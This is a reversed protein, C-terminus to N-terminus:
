QKLADRAFEFFARVRPWRAKNQTSVLFFPNTEFYPVPAGAIIENSREVYAAPLVACGEGAKVFRWIAEWNDCLLPVAIDERNWKALSLFALFLRDNEAYAAWPITKLLPWVEPGMGHESTGGLKTLRNKAVAAVANSVFLKRIVLQPNQPKLSSIAVDAEGNQVLEVAMRSSSSRLELAHPYKSLMGALRSFVESRGVVKLPRRSEAHAEEFVTELSGLLMQTDAELVRCVSRGFPSLVRKNGNRVFLAPEVTEELRRLRENFAPQSMDMKRAAVSANSARAFELLVPIDEFRLTRKM